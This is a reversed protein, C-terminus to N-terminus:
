RNGGQEKIQVSSINKIIATLKESNRIAEAVNITITTKWKIVKDAM